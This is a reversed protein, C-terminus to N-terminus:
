FHELTTGNLAARILTAAYANNTRAPTAFAMGEQWSEPAEPHTGTLIVWGSGVNGQVVAPTGDAYKAVVDGWGTLEPGDEWYQEATSGGAVLVAVAAKRINQRSLAHFNFRVGRTLNIGNYPSDGALFAGACVGFYNLGGEVAERINATAKSTLGNGMVEFNGGPVVLLRFGLLRDKNMSNLRESDARVFDLKQERLIREIEKVDNPSAGAGNFLLIAPAVEAVASTEPRSCGISTMLVFGLGVVLVPVCKIWQV